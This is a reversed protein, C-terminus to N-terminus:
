IGLVRETQPLSSLLTRKFILMTGFSVISTIACLMPIFVKDGSTARATAGSTSYRMRWIICTEKARKRKATILEKSHAEIQLKTLKLRNFSHQTSKVGLEQCQKHLRCSAILHMRCELLVTRVASSTSTASFKFFTSTLIRRLQNFKPSGISFHKLPEKLKSSRKLKNRDRSDFIDKNDKFASGWLYL